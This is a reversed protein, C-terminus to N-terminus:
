TGFNYIPIGISTCDAYASFSTELKEPNELSALEMKRLTDSGLFKGDM